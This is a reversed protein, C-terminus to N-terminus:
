SEKKKERRVKAWRARQASAIRERAEPSMNRKKAPAKGRAIGGKNGLISALEAELAAIKESIVLARKLQDASPLAM